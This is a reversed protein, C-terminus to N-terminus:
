FLMSRRNELDASRKFVMGIMILAFGVLFLLMSAGDTRPLPPAVKPGEPPIIVEDPEPAVDPAEPDVEIEEPPVLPLTVGFYHSPDTDTVIKGGASRGTVTGINSYQGAVAIGAARYTWAEGPQLVNDGNLDGSIYVPVVGARNDTVVLNFLPITNPNTVVYTWTVSGGVAIRPGTPLDADVGNTSKEINIVTEDPTFGFYHSPDTDSVNPGSPPTGIVTGINAYQGAVAIGTARYLWAEGVQLIGDGNADGSVYVPNVGIQNDTVVLNRLPVNGRNTVVYTWTVADGVPIFPGAPLDADVGNTSKEINIAPRLDPVDDCITYFVLEAELFSGQFENGTDPGPLTVIFELYLVDNYEMFAIWRAEIEALTLDEAFHPASSMKGIYIDEIRNGASDTKWIELFLMESLKGSRGLTNFENIIDWTMYLNASSTGTKTVTVRRSYSDGPNLNGLKFLNEDPNLAVRCPHNDTVIQAWTYLPQFMLALSFIVLLSGTIIMKSSHKRM